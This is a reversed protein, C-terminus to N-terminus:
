DHAGLGLQFDENNNFLYPLARAGDGYYYYMGYM